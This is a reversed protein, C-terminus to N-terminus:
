KVLAARLIVGYELYGKLCTLMYVWGEKNDLLQSVLDEDTETWGRQDVEITTSVNDPENLSITVVHETGAWKFVIKKNIEIKLVEIDVQADYEEYRLTVTRGQELRASDSSFWYNSMKKLDIFADFVENVPKVIKIKANVHLEM